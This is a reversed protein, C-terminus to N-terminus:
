SGPFDGSRQLTKLTEAMDCFVSDWDDRNPQRFLRASPYWSSKTTERQWRWEPTELLAIWVPKGLAGALHALGTDCTVVLDLAAIVAATDVFGDEGTDFDAGLTEVSMDRLLRDIQEAGNGLQLSILRIGPVSTLPRLHELRFSRAGGTGDDSWGQWAIGVRLGSTGIRSLWRERLAPEASLYPPMPTPWGLRHFRYPLSMLYVQFDPRLHPGISDLMTVPGPLSSLVRKLRKPVFLSVDAGFDCLTSAYRSFQFYDGNAQEGLVLIKKGTLDEGCWPPAEIDERLGKNRNKSFRFEYGEWGPGFEGRALHICGKNFHAAGSDPEIALARDCAALADDLRNEGFFALALNAYAAASTPKLILARRFADVAEGYARAALLASGFDLWASLDAPYKAVIKRMVVVAEPSRHSERLIKALALGAERHDPRLTLVHEFPEIADATRKLGVLAQAKELVIESNNPDLAAGRQAVQLADDSSGLTRLTGALGALADINNPDRVLLDEFNFRADKPRNLALLARGLELKAAVADPAYHLAREFSTVAEDHKGLAALALGLQHAAEADGPNAHLVERWAAAAEASKGEKDLAAARRRLALAPAAPAVAAGSDSRDADLRRPMPIIM